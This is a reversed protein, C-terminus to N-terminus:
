NFSRLKMKNKEFRVERKPTMRIEKKKLDRLDERDAVKGGKKKSYILCLRFILLKVQEM